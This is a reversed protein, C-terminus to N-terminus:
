QLLNLVSQNQQNAQALMQTSAQMLINNKTFETMEKAMDADSYTAEAKSVNESSTTLNNSTFELRNMIAGISAEQNLAKQLASDLVKVANSEAPSSTVDLTNGESGTLNLAQTRMDTMSIEVSQNEDAGVHLSTSVTGPSNRAGTDLFKGNFTLLANDDIQAIEAEIEKQVATRDVETNTDNAANIVKDKLTRLAELTSDVAGESVKMMSSGNQNNYDAQDLARIQTRIRDNLQYGESSTDASSNIKLGESSINDLTSQLPSSGRLASKQDALPSHMKITELKAFADSSHGTPSSNATIDAPTSIATDVTDNVPSESQTDIPATNIPAEIFINDASTDGTPAVTPNDGSIDTTTNDPTSSEQITVIENGSAVSQSALEALKKENSVSDYSDCQVESTEAPTEESELSDTGGNVFDLEEDSLIRFDEDCAKTKQFLKKNKM